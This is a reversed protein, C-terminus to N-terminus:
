NFSLKSAKNKVVSFKRLGAEPVVLAVIGSPFRSKNASNNARTSFLKSLRIPNFRLFPFACLTGREDRVPAFVWLVLSV